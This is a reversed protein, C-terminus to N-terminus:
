PITFIYPLFSAAKRKPFHSRKQQILRTKIGFRIVEKLLLYMSQYSSDHQSIVEYGALCAYPFFRGALSPNTVDYVMVDTMEALVRSIEQSSFM